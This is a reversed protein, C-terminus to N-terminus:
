LDPSLYNRVSLERVARDSVEPVVRGRMPFKRLSRAASRADKMLSAAYRPPDRAIYEAAAELEQWATRDLSSTSGGACGTRLRMMGSSSGAEVERRAREIRERVYISYQVDEPVADDPLAKPLRRVEDKATPMTM